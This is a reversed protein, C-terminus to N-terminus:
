SGQPKRYFKKFKHIIPQPDNENGTESVPLLKSFKANNAYMLTTLMCDNWGWGIAGEVMSKEWIDEYEQLYSEIHKDYAAIFSERNILSGGGFSYYPYDTRGGRSAVWEMGATSIGNYINPTIIMDTIPFSFNEKVLVDEDMMMVYDSKMTKCATYFRELWLKAQEMTWGYREETKPYGHSETGHIYSVCNHKKAIETFDEGNDSSLVIDSNPFNVRLKDFIYDVNEINEYAWMYFGVKDPDSSYKTESYKDILLDKWPQFRDYQHVIAYPKDNEAYILDGKLVPIKCKLVENFTKNKRIREYSLVPTRSATSWDPSLEPIAKLTGLNACWNDGAPIIRTIDKYTEYIAINYFAQDVFDNPDNSFFALDYITTFLHSIEKVYGAIIGSCLTERDAFKLYMNKGFHKELANSNWDEHRYTVGEATAMLRYDKINNAFWIGPDSQFIVDRIDTHIVAEVDKAFDSKLVNVYDIFRQTAMNTEGNLEGIFVHVNNEKLYNLLLEDQPNYVVVFVKGAFKTKKLSNLWPSIQEPSYGYASAIIGINM